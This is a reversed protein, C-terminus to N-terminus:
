VGTKPLTGPGRKIARLKVDPQNRRCRCKGDCLVSHALTDINLSLKM